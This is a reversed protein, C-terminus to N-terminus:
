IAHLSATTCTRRGSKGPKKIPMTPLTAAKAFDVNGRV